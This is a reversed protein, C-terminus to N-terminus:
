NKSSCLSSEFWIMTSDQLGPVNPGDIMVYAGLSLNSNTIFSYAISGYGNGNWANGWSNIFRFTQATDDYGVIAVAHGGRVCPATTCAPVTCTNGSCTGCIGSGNCDNTCNSGCPNVTYQRQARTGSDTDYVTNTTGNMTDFDPLVNFAIIVTNGGALVTKFDLSSVTLTNWSTARYHAARAMSAANPITKWDFQNYPFSSITDCGDNQLLNLGDSVSAGSGNSTIQNFIWSPSFEHTVDDPLWKMEAVEQLTKTAYGIAWGVCSGQVGQDGVPPLKSTLDVSTPLTATTRLASAVNLVNSKIVDPSDLIAGVPHLTPNTLAEQVVEDRDAKDGENNGPNSAEDDQACGVLLSTVLFLIAANQRLMENCIRGKIIEINNIM